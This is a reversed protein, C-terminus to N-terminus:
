RKRGALIILDVTIHSIDTGKLMEKKNIGASWTLPTMTIIHEINRDDVPIKYQIKNDSTVHFSNKFLQITKENSYNEKESDRFLSRRLELLYKEGPVVKLIIGEANLVRAFEAYNSPSLINLVADCQGTQVPLRTIDGVMWIANGYDRAAIHIGERAIDIGAGYVGPHNRSALKNLVQSLLSGEGCGADLIFHDNTSKSKLHTSLIDSMADILPDFFGERSITNRATFMTTDYKSIVPARLMNVYGNRAIDFCHGNECVISKANEVRFVGGCITCAFRHINKEIIHAAIVSKKM